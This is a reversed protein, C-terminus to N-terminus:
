GNDTEEDGDKRAERRPGRPRDGRDGRDGRDRDGRSSLVASPGEEIEDVRVTMFRIIDENLRINRELENIAAAPGDIGFFVYFGKRNKKIRYAINRLGWNETKVVKAGNDEIIKTLEEILTDVQTSPIDQRAIFIHEYLSM